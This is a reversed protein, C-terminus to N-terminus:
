GVSGLDANRLDEAAHEPTRPNIYAGSGKELAAQIAETIPEIQCHWHYTELETHTPPATHFYLNYDPDNLTVRIRRLTEQLLLAFETLLDAGQPHTSINAFYSQHYRPAVIVQYPTRSTFPCWAMFNGTVKILREESRLEWDREECYFCSRNLDYYHRAGSLELHIRTPQTPLAVLQSHPHPQSAGALPGYNKFLFIYNINRTSGVALTMERWMHLVERFYFPDLTELSVDHRPSEIIVYHFGFAPLVTFPGRKEVELIESPISANVAPALNPVVRVWWGPSNAKTDKARYSRVEQPTQHERGEEFSCDEGSVLRPNFKSWDRKNQRRLRELPKERDSGIIVLTGSIPNRRLEEVRGPM